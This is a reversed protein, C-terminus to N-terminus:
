ATALHLQVLRPALAPAFHASPSPSGDISVDEIRILHSEEIFGMVYAGCVSNGSSTSSESHTLCEKHLEISSLPDLESTHVLAPLAAVFGLLLAPFSSRM